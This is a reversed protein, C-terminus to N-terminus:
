IRDKTEVVGFLKWLLVFLDAGGRLGRAQSIKKPFFFCLLVEHWGQIGVNELDSVWMLVFDVAPEFFYRMSIQLM